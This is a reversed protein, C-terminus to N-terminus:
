RVVLAIHAVLPGSFTHTTRVTLTSGSTAFTGGGEGAAATAVPVGDGNGVQARHGAAIGDAFGAVVSPMTPTIDISASADGVDISAVLTWGALTGRADTVTARPLVGRYLGTSADRTLAIAVAAPTVSLTGAHVGMSVTQAVDGAVQVPASADAPAPQVVQPAANSASAPAPPQAAAAGLTTAAFAATLVALALLTLRRRPM